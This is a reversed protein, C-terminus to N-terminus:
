RGEERDKILMKIANGKKDKPRSMNWFNDPLAGNGVRLLGAQELSLIHAPISKNDRKIPIIRAIPKNRDTIIIEEGSKVKLLYESLHAKLDSIATSKM